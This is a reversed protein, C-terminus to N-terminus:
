LEHLGNLEYHQIGIVEIILKLEVIENDFYLYYGTKPNIPTLTCYNEHLITYPLQELFEMTLREFSSVANSCKPCLRFPHLSFDSLTRLYDEHIDNECKLYVTEHSFPSYEFPTKINKNSWLVNIKPFKSGISDLPHTKGNLGVAHCYCCVDDRLSYNHPTIWFDHYEM